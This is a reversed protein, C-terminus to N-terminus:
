HQHHIRARYGNRNLPSQDFGVVGHVPGAVTCSLDWLEFAKAPFTYGNIEVWVKENDTKEGGKTVRM